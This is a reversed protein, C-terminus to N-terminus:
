KFVPNPVEASPDDIVMVASNAIIVCISINEFAKTNIIKYCVM